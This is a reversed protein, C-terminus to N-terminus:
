WVGTATNVGGTSGSHNHSGDTSTTFPGANGISGTENHTHDLLQMSQLVGTLPGAAGINAAGGAARIFEGNAIDSSVWQTCPYLTNPDAANFWQIYTSGIPPTNVNQWCTGNFVEAAGLTTNFRIAGVPPAAPQQATTGAPLGIADTANDQFSVVPTTTNLGINTGLQFLVSNCLDTPSTFMTVYGAGATPCITGPGTPGTVGTVGQAGTVGTVGTVGTSGTAGTPGTPGSLCLSNWIGNFYFYCGVNTDYVLLGAAPTVIATRQATTMRPALFGKDTATLDLISTPDPTPTGIGINNQAFGQVMALAMVFLLCIKKMYDKKMISSLFTLSYLNARSM